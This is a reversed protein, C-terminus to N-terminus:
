ANLKAFDFLSEVVVEAGTQKKYPNIWAKEQAEQYDGWLSVFVLPRGGGGGGGGSGCGAAGLLAAGTLGVGGLKLFHRRSIPRRPLGNGQDKM